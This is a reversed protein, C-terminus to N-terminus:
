KEHWMGYSKILEILEEDADQERVNAKVMSQGKYLHIKGPAAGVYGFDADAMEGPGNVVCGMIGIKVGKLHKTKDKIRKTTSQLDFVTRGCSPCAIFETKSMRIRTAQLLEKSLEYSIEAKSLDNAGEKDLFSLNGERQWDEKHLNEPLTSCLLRLFVHQAKKKFLFSSFEISSLYLAEITHGYTGELVLFDKSHMFNAFSEYLSKSFHVHDGGFNHTSQNLTAPTSEPIKINQTLSIYIPLHSLSSCKDLLHTFLADVNETNSFQFPFILRIFYTKPSNDYKNIIHIKRQVEELKYALSIEKNTSDKYPGLTIDLDFALIKTKKLLDIIHSSFYESQMMNELIESDIHLAYRALPNKLLIELLELIKERTTESLSTLNPLILYLYDQEFEKTELLLYEFRKKYDQEELLSSLYLPVFIGPKINEQTKESTQITTLSTAQLVHQKASSNEVISQTQAYVINKAAPIEHVSDETLSVRITDGIGESLLSGIGIASKIRASGGDGAETVGLHLPYNMSEQQMREVLLRYASLMVIVNSSKMSLVINHFSHSRAMRVFELASEVMGVPNDGYQNVIRDSLSGHNVGIRIAKDLQKCREVLPLFQEHAAELELQYEQSSYTKKKFHKRDTFNGPNIRVKDAYEAALLATKPSFHIDAVLPIDYGKNVLEKKITSLHKADRPIPVTVRIIEAGMKHLGISEQVVEDTDITHSIVMSQLRIPQMGGIFINGIRVERSLVNGIMKRQSIM